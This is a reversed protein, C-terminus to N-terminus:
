ARKTEPAALFSRLAASLAEHNEALLRLTAVQDLVRGRMGERDYPIGMQDAVVADAIGANEDLFASLISYHRALLTTIKEGLTGVDPIQAVYIQMVERDRVPIFFACDESELHKQALETLGSKTVVDHLATIEAFLSAALSRRQAEAREDDRQREYRKQDEWRRNTHYIGWALVFAAALPVLKFLDTETM